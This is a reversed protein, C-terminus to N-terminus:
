KLITRYAKTGSGTLRGLAEVRMEDTLGRGFLVSFRSQMLQGAKIGTIQGRSALEDAQNALDLIEQTTLVM